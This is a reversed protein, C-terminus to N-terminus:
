FVVSDSFYFCEVNDTVTLYWLTPVALVNWMTPFLKFVVSYSCYSCEVNDHVNCM